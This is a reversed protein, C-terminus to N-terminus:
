AAIAFSTNDIATVSRAIRSLRQSTHGLPGYLDTPVGADRLAEIRDAFARGDGSVLAISDFRGIVAAPDLLELLRLDAGDIGRGLLTGDPLADCANTLLNSGCAVYRVDNSSRGVTADVLRLAAGVLASDADSGGIVNEIDVLVLRRGAPVWRAARRAHRAARRQSRSTGATATATTHATTTTTTM